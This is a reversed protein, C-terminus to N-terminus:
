QIFENKYVFFYYYMMSLKKDHMIYIDDLLRIFHRMENAFICEGVYKMQLKYTKIM